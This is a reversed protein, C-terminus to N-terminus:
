DEEFSWNFQCGSERMFELVSEIVDEPSQDTYITKYKLISGHRCEDEFKKIKNYHSEILRYGGIEIIEDDDYWNLNDKGKTFLDQLIENWHDQDDVKVSVIFSSSSSNSVFCTRVKM